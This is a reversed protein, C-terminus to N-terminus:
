YGNNFMLNVDDDWEDECDWEDDIANWDGENNISSISAPDFPEASTELVLGASNAKDKLKSFSMSSPPEDGSLDILLCELDKRVVDKDTTNYSMPLYDASTTDLIRYYM